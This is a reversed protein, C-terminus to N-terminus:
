GYGTVSRNTKVHMVHMFIIILLIKCLYLQLHLLIASAPITIEMFLMELSFFYFQCKLICHAISSVSSNSKLFNVKLPINALRPPWGCDFFLTQLFEVYGNLVDRRILNSIYQDSVLLCIIKM